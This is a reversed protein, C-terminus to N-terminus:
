LHDREDKRRANAHAFTLRRKCRKRRYIRKRRRSSTPFVVVSPYLIWLWPVDQFFRQVLSLNWRTDYGLLLRNGQPSCPRESESAHRVNHRGLSCTQGTSRLSLFKRRRTPACFASAIYRDCFVQLHVIPLQRRCHSNFVSCFLVFATQILVIFSGSADVLASAHYSSLSVRKILAISVVLLM